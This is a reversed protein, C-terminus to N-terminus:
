MLVLCNYCRPRQIAAGASGNARRIRGIALGRWVVEYEDECREGGIVTARLTLPEDDSM